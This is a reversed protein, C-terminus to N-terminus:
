FFFRLSSFSICYCIIDGCNILLTNFWFQNTDVCIFSIRRDAVTNSVVLARWTNWHMSFAAAFNMRVIFWRWWLVISQTMIYQRTSLKFETFYTLQSISGCGTFWNLSSSSEIPTPAATGCTGTLKFFKWKFDLRVKMLHWASNSYFDYIKKKM